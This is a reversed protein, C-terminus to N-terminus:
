NEYLTAKIWVAGATGYYNQERRTELWHLLYNDDHAFIVAEDEFQIFPNFGGRMYKEPGFERSPSLSDTLVLGSQPTLLAWQAGDFYIHRSEDQVFAIMGSITPLSEWKQGKWIILSGPSFNEWLGTGTASLIFIDGIDPDTLPSLQTRSQVDMNILTDVRSLAENVTVTKNAQGPALLDISHRPTLYNMIIEM